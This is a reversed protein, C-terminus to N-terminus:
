HFSHIFTILSCSPKKATNKILQLFLAPNLSLNFYVSPISFLPLSHTHELELILKSIELAWRMEKLNVILIQSLEPM